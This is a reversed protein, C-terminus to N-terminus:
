SVLVIYIKIKQIQTKIEVLMITESIIAIIRIRLKQLGKAVHYYVDFVCKSFYMPSSFHIIEVLHGFHTFYTKNKTQKKKIILTLNTM